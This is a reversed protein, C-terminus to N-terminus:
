IWGEEIEDMVPACTCSRNALGSSIAVHVCVLYRDDGRDYAYFLARRGKGRPNCPNEVHCDGSDQELGCKVSRMRWHGNSTQRNVTDRSM